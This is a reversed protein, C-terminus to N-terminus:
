RGHEMEAGLLRRLRRRARFLLTKVTGSSVGLSRAIEGVTLQQQYFLLVVVRERTTLEDVAQWLQRARDEALVGQLPDLEPSPDARHEGDELPVPERRASRWRNQALRVAIKALWPYVPRRGDFSGLHEFARVFADQALEEAAARDRVLSLSLSLLRSQYAEVLHAFAEHDGALVRAVATRDADDPIPGRLRRRSRDEVGDEARM